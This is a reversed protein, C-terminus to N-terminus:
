LLLLTYPKYLTSQALYTFLLDQFLPKDLITPTFLVYVPSDQSCRISPELHARECVITWPQANCCYRVWRHVGGIGFSTNSSQLQAHWFAHGTLTHGYIHNM